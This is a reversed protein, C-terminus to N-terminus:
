NRLIYMVVDFCSWADVLLKPGFIYSWPILYQVSYSLLVSCGWMRSQNLPTVVQYKISLVTNYMTFPYVKLFVISFQWLKMQSRVYILYFWLTHVCGCSSDESYFKSCVSVKSWCSVATYQM